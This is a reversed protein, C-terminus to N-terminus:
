KILRSFVSCCSNSKYILSSRIYPPKLVSTYLLNRNGTYCNRKPVNLLINKSNQPHSNLFSAIGLFGPMYKTAENQSLTIPFVKGFPVFTYSIMTKDTPFASILLPHEKGSTFETLQLFNCYASSM